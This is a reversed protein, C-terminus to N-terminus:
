SNKKLISPDPWCIMACVVVSWSELYRSYLIPLYSLCDAYAAVCQTVENREGPFPLIVCLTCIQPLLSGPNVTLIEHLRLFVLFLVQHVLRTQIEFAFLFYFSVFHVSVHSWQCPPFDRCSSTISAKHLPHPLLPSFSKRPLILLLPRHLFLRKM